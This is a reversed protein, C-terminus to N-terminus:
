KKNTKKIKKSKKEKKVKPKRALKAELEEIREQLSKPEEKKESHDIGFITSFSMGWLQMWNNNRTEGIVKKKLDGIETTLEKIKNEIYSNLSYTKSQLSLSLNMNEHKLENVSDSLRKIPASYFALEAEEYTKGDDLVVREVSYGCIVSEIDQKFVNEVRGVQSLNNLVLVIDGKTFKFRM